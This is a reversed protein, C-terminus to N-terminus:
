EDDVERTPNWQGRDSVHGDRGAAPAEPHEGGVVVNIRQPEVLAPAEPQASDPAPRDVLCAAGELWLKGHNAVVADGDPILDFQTCGIL